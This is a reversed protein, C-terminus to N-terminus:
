FHSGNQCSSTIFNRLLSLNTYRLRYNTLRDPAPRVGKGDTHNDVTIDQIKPHSFTTPLQYAKEVLGLTTKVLGPTTHVLGPTTKELGPTTRVLGPTTKVLRPSTIIIEHFTWDPLPPPDTM